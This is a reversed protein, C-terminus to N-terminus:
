MRDIQQFPQLVERASWQPAQLFNHLSEIAAINGIFVIMNINKLVGSKEVELGYPELTWDGMVFNFLHTTAKARLIGKARVITPPLNEAVERIEDLSDGHWLYTVSALQDSPTTESESNDLVNNIYDEIIEPSLADLVSSQIDGDTETCSSIISTFNDLPINSYNTKYIQPDPHHEAIINEIQEITAKGAKDAKNIIFVTSTSLQKEVSAFVEFAELFNQADIICFQEAFDFRNNFIPLQLDKKLDAPNAVGTSEIILLDPRIKDKLEFLGKIFDKKVCVCFISGRSIEMMDIDDGEVLTGDIGIEGFENMLVTLKLDKPFNNIIRNLFTTKGSGLFGTILIVSTTENM